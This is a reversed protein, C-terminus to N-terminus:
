GKRQRPKNRRKVPEQAVEPEAAKPPAKGSMAQASSLCLSDLLRSHGVAGRGM